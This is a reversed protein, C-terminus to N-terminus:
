KKMICIAFLYHSMPYFGTHLVEDNMSFILINHFFKQLYYKFDSGSLCNVHGIKSAKSAYTQSELSPMGIIVIGNPLLSACINEMFLDSQSKEIHEFVDLAFIGDFNGSISGDLIDQELFCYDEEKIRERCSKIYPKYFDIGTYKKVEKKIIHAGFGEQCGIELVNTFNSFIKSVFKYRSLTFLLLKPDNFLINTTNQGLVYNTHNERDISELYIEKIKSSSKEGAFDSMLLM